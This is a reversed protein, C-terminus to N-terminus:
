KRKEWTSRLQGRAPDLNPREAAAVRSYSAPNRGLFRDVVQFM